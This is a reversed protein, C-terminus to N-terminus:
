GFSDSASHCSRRPRERGSQGTRGHKEKAADAIAATCVTDDTYMWDRHLLEFDKPGDRSPDNAVVVTDRVIRREHGIRHALERPAFEPALRRRAVGSEDQVGSPRASM